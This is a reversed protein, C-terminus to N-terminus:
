AVAYPGTLRVPQFRVPFVSSSPFSTRARCRGGCPLNLSSGYAAATYASSSKSGSVLVAALVTMKVLRTM